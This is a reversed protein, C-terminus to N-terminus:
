ERNSPYILKGSYTGGPTDAPRGIIRNNDGAPCDASMPAAEFRNGILTPKAGSECNISLQADHITNGEIRNLGNGKVGIAQHWCHYVTNNKITADASWIDICSWLSDHITSNSIAVVKGGSFLAADNGVYVGNHAYAVEVYDLVSGGFLVLQDWDAYEPKTQASSFMIPQQKTGIAKIRAVLDFHSQNYGIRGTPDHHDKIYADAFKTWDTDARDPNKEFLIKTGPAITLTVWPAFSTDGVITITGSWHEPRLHFGSVKANSIKAPLFALVGIISAIMLGLAILLFFIKKVMTEVM